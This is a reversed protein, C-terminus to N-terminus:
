GLPHSPARRLGLREALECVPRARIPASLGPLATQSFSRDTGGGAYRRRRAQFGSSEWGPLRHIAVEALPSTAALPDSLVEHSATDTVEVTATSPPTGRNEPIAVDAPQELMVMVPEDAALGLEPGPDSRSSRPTVLKLLVLLWLCHLAAPRRALLRGLAAVLIALV